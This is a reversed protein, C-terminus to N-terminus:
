RGSGDYTDFFGARLHAVRCLYDVLQQPDGKELYGWGACQDCFPILNCSSCPSSQNRREKRVQPLFKHWGEAFSGKRLNFKCYRSMMCVTMNGHSDIHFSDLGAGCNYLMNSNFPTNQFTKIFSLLSEERRRDSMDLAIVDEPPIRFKLPGLGGDLRANLLPDYRFNVGLKEAYSKMDHIEHRNMSLVMSKLEVKISRDLLLQIGRICRSYSGPLNTVKEYTRETAGYLTVEVSSLPYEALLDAIEDSVLTANTFLNILLGKRKAYIYIDSFDPRLLPEGGTLLLWLTGEEVMSDILHYIEYSTLELKRANQDDAPVNIYCHACKLNCRATLEMSASWPIRRKDLRKDLCAVFESCTMEPIKPCEL